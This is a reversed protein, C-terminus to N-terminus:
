GDLCELIFSRPSSLLAALCERSEALPPPDRTSVSNAAATQRDTGEKSKGVASTATAGKPTEKGGERGRMERKDSGGGVFM